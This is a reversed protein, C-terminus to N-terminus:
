STIDEDSTIDDEDVWRSWNISINNKYLSRDKLLNDWFIYEKKPIDLEFYKNNNIKYKEFDINKNFEFEIEYEEQKFKITNETIDLIYNDLPEILINLYIFKENQSWNIHPIKM